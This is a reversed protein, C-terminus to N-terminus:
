MGSYNLSALVGLPAQISYIPTNHMPNARIACPFDMDQTYM